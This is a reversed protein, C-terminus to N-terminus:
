ELERDIISRIEQTTEAVSRSADIIRFRAAEARALELYGARVKEHFEM